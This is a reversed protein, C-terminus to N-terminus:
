VSPTPTVLTGTVVSANNFIALTIREEIRFMVKNQKALTSDEFMRLEPALRNVLLTATKDFALFTNASLQTTTAINLGAVELKGNTFAVTGMPLDYEGSGSAKNLGIAVADRVNLIATNGQYFEFTDEPIQGYAADVIKDVAATYTGDYATAVDLLGDVPNADATGNLIFNNEAVKLSILMKSQIYSAVWDIDDLMERDVIVFGAIWKVFASQSTLDFDIQSKDGTVWTAAGGEGGNEKPYIISGKTTNGQPLYDSLWVRDYPNQIIAQRVDQNFPTSGPFNAAISMDGVAKLELVVSDGKKFNQIVAANEKITEVLIQNFTKTEIKKDGQAQKLRIDLKDLHDQMATSKTQFDEKLAEIDKDFKGKVELESAKAKTEFADIASQIDLKSKSEFGKSLDNKLAELQKELENM